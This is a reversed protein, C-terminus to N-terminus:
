EPFDKLGESKKIILPNPATFDKLFSDNSKPYIRDGVASTPADQVFLKYCRKKLLKKWFKKLKEKRFSNIEL